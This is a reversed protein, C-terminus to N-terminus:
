KAEAETLVKVCNTNGMETAISVPTSGDLTTTANLDVGVHILIEVCDTNGKWAAIFLPTAGDLTRAANLDAGANILIELCDANGKLAALFLPSTGDLTRAANPNAGANILREVVDTHGRISAVMLATLGKVMVANVNVGDALSRELQDLDGDYCADYFTWDPFFTDPHSENTNQNVVPMPDQRCMACRRSGIPQDLFCRTICDLDFRQRCCQTTVVVPPVSRGHFYALCIPCQDAKVISPSLTTLLTVWLYFM